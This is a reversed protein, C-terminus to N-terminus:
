CSVQDTCGFRIDRSRGCRRLTADQKLLVLRRVLTYRSALLQRRAEQLAVTEEESKVEASAAGRDAM